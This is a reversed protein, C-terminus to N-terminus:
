WPQSGTEDVVLGDVSEKSDTAAKILVKAGERPDKAGGYADLNTACYGSGLYQCMISQHRLNLDPNSAGVIFGEDELLRAYHVMVMNVATKSSRYNPFNVGSYLGKSELAWRLSGLDSSTFAIRKGGSATSKRLLPLFAEVTVAQGFVNTDFVQRYHERTTGPAHSIGANVMLIDLRGYKDEVAKAAAQISEDSSTDIHIPKVNAPNAKISKDDSLTQIAKEAKEFDRSGMLIHYDDTTSLQQIAFYGLGQNGGTVLVLTKSTM